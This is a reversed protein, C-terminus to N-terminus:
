ATFVSESLTGDISLLLINFDEASLVPDGECSAFTYLIDNETM